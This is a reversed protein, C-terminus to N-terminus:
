KKVRTSASKVPSIADEKPEDTDSPPTVDDAKPEDTDSPPTVDDAKPTDSSIIPVTKLLTEIEEEVAGDKDSSSFEISDVMEFEGFGKTCLNFATRKDVIVVDGKELIPRPRALSHVFEKPEDKIYKIAYYPQFCVKSM